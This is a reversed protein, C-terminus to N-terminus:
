SKKKLFRSFGPNSLTLSRYKQKLEQQSSNPNQSANKFPDNPNNFANNGNNQNNNPNNNQNNEFGQNAQNNASFGYGNTQNQNNNSEGFGKANNFGQNNQMNGFNHQQANNKIPRQPEHQQMNQQSNSNFSNQQSQTNQQGGTFRNNAPQTNQGAFGDTKADKFATQQQNKNKSFATNSLFSNERKESKEAQQTNNSGDFRNANEANANNNIAFSQAHNSHQHDEPNFSNQNQPQGERLFSDDDQNKSSLFGQPYQQEDIYKKEVDLNQLFSPKRKKTGNKFSSNQAKNGSDINSATNKPKSNATANATVNPAKTNNFYDKFSNDKINTANQPANHANNFANTSAPAPPNKRQSFSEFEEIGKKVPQKINNISNNQNQTQNFVKSGSPKFQHGEAFFDKKHAPINSNEQNKFFENGKNNSFNSDKHKSFVDDNTENIVIRTNCSICPVVGSNGSNPMLFQNKGCQQCKLLVLSGM